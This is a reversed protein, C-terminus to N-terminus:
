FKFSERITYGWCPAEATYYRHAENVYIVVGHLVVPTGEAEFASFARPRFAVKDGAKHRANRPGYPDAWNM